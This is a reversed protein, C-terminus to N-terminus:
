GSKNLEQLFRRAGRRKIDFEKRVAESRTNFSETYVLEWPGKGTTAKSRNQQHRRIRDVLDNTSGTYYRSNTLSRIIYTYYM